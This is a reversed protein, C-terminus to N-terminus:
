LNVHAHKACIILVSSHVMMNARISFTLNQIKTNVSVFDTSCRFQQKGLVMPNHERTQM